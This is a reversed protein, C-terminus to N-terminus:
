MEGKRIKEEDEKIWKDLFANEKKTWNPYKGNRRGTGLGMGKGKSRIKSGPCPKSRFSVVGKRENDDHIKDAIKSYRRWENKGYPFTKKEIRESIKHATWYPIKEKQIEHEIIEHLLTHKRFKKPIDKDLMYRRRRHVGVFRVDEKIDTKKPVRLRLTIKHGKPIISSRKGSMRNRKAWVARRQADSKFPM